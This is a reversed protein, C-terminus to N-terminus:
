ARSVNVASPGKPGDTIEFSLTDGVKLEDFAVGNLEKSHFFLDKDGGERTIFGFGRDTLTKIQGTAM